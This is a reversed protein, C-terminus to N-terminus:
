WLFPFKGTILVLFLYRVYEMKKWTNHLKAARVGCKLVKPDKPSLILIRMDKHEM